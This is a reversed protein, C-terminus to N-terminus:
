NADLMRKLSSWFGGQGASQKSRGPKSGQSAVTPLVRELEGPDFFIGKCSSCFDLETAEIFVVKLYRGACVPCQRRSERYDLNLISDLIQEIGESDNSKELM